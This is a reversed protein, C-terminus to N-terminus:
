ISRKLWSLVQEKTQRISGQNDFVIDALEKKRDIPWQSSIRHRAEEETYSNRKMLRELQLAPTVYVVAVADFYQQYGGEYLLPIDAVVLPSKKKAEKIEAEIERRIFPDMVANMKKRKEEDSFVIEALKRRDLAGTDLLIEEGFYDTLATLCPQGPEVVLRAVVDGDVVPFGLEKFVNIVTSKGTAIGGTVGLVYSM